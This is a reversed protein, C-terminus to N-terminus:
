RAVVLGKSTVVVWHGDQRRIGDVRGLGPVDDGAYVVYYGRKGEILASGHSVDRLVWGELTPLRPIELKPPLPTTKAPGISGTVDPQAAAVPTAPPAPPTAHLKDTAESLKAIKAVPEAQAKELKDLRESTKNFQAIGTKSTHEVNSALAQIDAEIRAVSAQLASNEARALEGGAVHSLAATALAGALAGTLAALAVMAALASFRRKGVPSQNPEELKPENGLVDDGDDASMIMITDPFAPAASPAEAGLAEPAATEAMLAETEADAEAAPTEATAAIPLSPDDPLSPGVIDPSSFESSTLAAHQESVHFRGTFNSWKTVKMTQWITVSPRRVSIKLFDDPGGAKSRWGARLTETRTLAGTRHLVDPARVVKEDNAGGSKAALMAPFWWGSLRRVIAMSFHM